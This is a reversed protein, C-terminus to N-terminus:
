QGLTMRVIAVADSITIYGDKNVDANVHDYLYPQANDNGLIISVVAIADAISITGDKNVDGLFPGLYKLLFNDFLTWDSTVAENKKIGIRLINNNVTVRLPEVQYLGAHIYYSADSQSNPIYGYTSQNVGRTGCNGAESFISPLPKTADNGYLMAILSENGAKRKNAAADYGGNRYFGQASVEYIGDPVDTIEQYVDYTTDFKEGNMDGWDNGAYGDRKPSGNWNNIRIDNRGFSAGPLLFTVDVPHEATANGMREILENRTLLLWLASPSNANTTTTIEAHITTPASLYETGNSITYAQHGDITSKEAFIWEFPSSDCYLNSGLYHATGGNSVHSDLLYGSRGPSITFNIGSESTIAQTDWKNGAAIFLNSAPNYLYYDGSTITVYGLYDNVVKRPILRIGLKDGSDNGTPNTRNGALVEGAAFNKDNDWLGVYMGHAVNTCLWYNGDPQYELGFTTKDSPTTYDANRTTFNWSNPSCIYYGPEGLNRFYYGTNANGEVMWLQYLDSGYNSNAAKYYVRNESSSSDYVAWVLNASAEKSYFQFYYDSLNFPLFDADDLVSASNILVDSPYSKGDFINVIRWCYSEANALTGSYTYSPDVRSTKEKPEVTALTAWEAGSPSKYQIRIEDVIDGNSDSWQLRVSNNSFSSSLDFPKKIAVVPIFEYAANYGLGGDTAAYAQGLTTLKGDYINGKSESNWYFYREVYKTNNLTTLINSTESVIESETVGSKFCGNSNWRAGWMWESILLPRQYADHYSPLNNFSAWYCHIDYIDCRWGRADIKKFFEKFWDANVSGDYTSPSCLRLGTRMADEWYSLVEDVTFSRPPNGDNPNAPENDTKMTCAYETNGCDAIGPWGPEIKHPLWEVDPLRNGGVNYTYCGQVNLLDCVEERTENAIGTKGFNLWKFLRYSSVKGALVPPLNMELDEEAAVFCRSYGYGSTGTAFTVMYGRKLKFSRFNNLLQSSTLTRMYGGNSGTSYNTCSTGTYDTGTYTTLAVDSSGYPLIIAGKNYMRVQCNTGDVATAGNIKIYKLWTSIVASPKVARFIIVSHEKSAAPINLSGSSGFIGSPLTLVYDTNASVDIASNISQSRTTQSNKGEAFFACLFCLSLLIARSCTLISLSTTEKSLNYNTRLKSM